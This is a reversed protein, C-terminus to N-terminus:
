EWPSELEKALDTEDDNEDYADEKPAAGRRSRLALGALLTAPASLLGIFGANASRRNACDHAVGERTALPKAILDGIDDMELGGGSSDLLYGTSAGQWGTGLLSGCSVEYSGNTDYDKYTITPSEVFLVIMWVFLALAIVGPIMRYKM